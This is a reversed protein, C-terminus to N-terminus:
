FDHTLEITKFLLENLGSDLGCDLGPKMMEGIGAMYFNYYLNLRDYNIPDM